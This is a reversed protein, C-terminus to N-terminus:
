PKTILPMYIRDIVEGLPAKYISVKLYTSYGYTSNTINVTAINWGPVLLDGNTTLRLTDGVVGNAPVTSLWSQNSSVSFTLGEIGIVTSSFDPVNTQDDDLFYIHRTPNAFLAPSAITAQLQEYHEGPATQYDVLVIVEVNEWYTPHIDPVDIEFTATQGPELSSIATKAANLGAHHTTHTEYQVGSEKVIGYVGANNVPSLTVTSNNTVTATIKVTNGSMWWLANIEATAPQALSDNIMEVYTEYAEKPLEAGRHHLRGSDVIAWTLGLGEETAQIVEWRAQPPEFLPPVDLSYHYDILVVPQNAYDQALQDIM